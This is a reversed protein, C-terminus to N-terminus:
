AISTQNYESIIAIERRLFYMLSVHTTNEICKGLLQKDFSHYWAAYAFSFSTEEMGARSGWTVHWLESSALLGATPSESNLAQISAKTM